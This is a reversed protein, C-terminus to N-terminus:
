SNRKLKSIVFRQDGHKLEYPVSFHKSLFLDTTAEQGVHSSDHEYLCLHSASLSNGNLQYDAMDRTKFEAFVMKETPPAEYAWENDSSILIVPTRGTADFKKSLTFLASTSVTPAAIYHKASVAKKYDQSGQSNQFTYHLELNAVDIKYNELAYKNGLSKEIRVASPLFQSTMEYRVLIKLFEGTEIRSVVESYVHYANEDPLHALKFNEQSYNVQKQFYTYSGELIIDINKSM